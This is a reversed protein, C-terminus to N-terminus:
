KNDSEEGNPYIIRLTEAETMVIDEARLFLLRTFSVEVYHFGLSVKTLQLNPLSINFLINLIKQFDGSGYFLM